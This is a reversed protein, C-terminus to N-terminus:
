RLPCGANEYWIRIQDLAAEQLLAPAGLEYRFTQASYGIVGPFFLSTAREGGGPLVKLLSQVDIGYAMARRVRADGTLGAGNAYRLFVLKPIVASVLIANPPVQTRAPESIEISVQTRRNAQRELNVVFRL